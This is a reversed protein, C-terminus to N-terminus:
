TREDTLHSAASAQREIPSPGTFLRSFAASVAARDGTNNNTKKVNKARLFRKGKRELPAQKPAMRMARSEVRPVSRFHVDYRPASELRGIPVIRVLSFQEGGQRGTEPM